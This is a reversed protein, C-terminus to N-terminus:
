ELKTTGQYDDAFVAGEYKELKPMDIGDMPSFLIKTTFKKQLILSKCGSNNVDGSIIVNHIPSVAKIVDGGFLEINKVILIDADVLSTLSELFLQVQDKTFFKVSDYENGVQKTFEAEAMPFGCLVSLRCGQMHWKAAVSITYFSAGSGEAGHILMPLSEIVLAPVEQNDLLIKKMVISFLNPRGAWKRGLKLFKKEQM